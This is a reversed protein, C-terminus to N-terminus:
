LQHPKNNYIEQLYLVFYNQAKQDCEVKQAQVKRGGIQEKM